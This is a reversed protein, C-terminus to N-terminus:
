WGSWMDSSVRKYKPLLLDIKMLKSLYDLGHIIRNLSSRKSRIIWPCGEFPPISFNSYSNSGFANRTLSPLASRQKKVSSLTFSTRLRRTLAPTSITSRPVSVDSSPVTILVPALPFILLTYQLSGSPFKISHTRWRTVDFSGLVEALM